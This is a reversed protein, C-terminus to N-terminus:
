GFMMGYMRREVGRYEKIATRLAKLEKKVGGDQVNMVKRFLLAFLLHCHEPDM